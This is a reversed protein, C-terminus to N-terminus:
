RTRGPLLRRAGERRAAEQKAPISGGGNQPARWRTGPPSSLGARKRGRRTPSGAGHEKESSARLPQRVSVSTSGRLDDSAAGARAPVDRQAPPFPAFCHSVNEIRRAATEGQDQTPCKRFRAFPKSLFKI